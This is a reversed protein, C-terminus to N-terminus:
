RFTYVEKWGGRPDVAKVLRDAAATVLLGIFLNVYTCHMTPAYHAPTVLLGGCLFITLAYHASISGVVINKGGGGENSQARIGALACYSYLILVTHTSYSYLM